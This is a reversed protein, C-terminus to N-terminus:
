DYQVSLLILIAFKIGHPKDAYQKLLLPVIHLRVPANCGLNRHFKLHIISSSEFGLITIVM